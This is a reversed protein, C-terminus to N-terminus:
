FIDIFFDKNWKIIYKIWSSIHYRSTKNFLISKIFNKYKRSQHQGYHVISANSDYLVDRGLERAKRCIDVDEFYMFYREDFGGIERFFKNNIIM